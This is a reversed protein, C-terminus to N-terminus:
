QLSTARRAPLIHESVRRASPFRKGDFMHSIEPIENIPTPYALSLGLGPRQAFEHIHQRRQPTAALIPV